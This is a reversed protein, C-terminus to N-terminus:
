GLRESDVEVSNGMHDHVHAERIHPVGDYEVIDGKYVYGRVGVENKLM